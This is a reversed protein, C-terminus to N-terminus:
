FLPPEQKKSRKLNCAPSWLSHCQPISDCPLWKVFVQYYGQCAGTSRATAGHPSFRPLLAAPNCPFPLCVKTNRASVAVDRLFVDHQWAISRSTVYRTAALCPIPFGRQAKGRLRQLQFRGLTSQLRVHSCPQLRPNRRVCWRHKERAERRM